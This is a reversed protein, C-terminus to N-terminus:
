CALRWWTRCVPAVPVFVISLFSSFSVQATLVVNTGMLLFVRQGNMFGPQLPGIPQEDEDPIFEGPLEDDQNESNSKRDEASMELAQVHTPPECTVVHMM